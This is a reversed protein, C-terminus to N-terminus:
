KYNTDGGYAATLSHSGVILTQITKTATGSADLTVTALLTGGDSVAVTGTPTGLGAVGTATVTFTVADGYTSPNLNSTLSITAATRTIVQTVVPSVASSYNSDGAFSATISHSGASLANFTYTALGGAINGTGLVTAGDLFKMSGTASSPMQATFTVPAGYTAPNTPTTLTITPADKSVVLTVTATNTSYDTLDTPSFTVALTQSGAGLVTGLAPAYVFSGAVGGSSASLQATSLATGYTIPSPNAWTLTSTAKQVTVSASASTATYNADGSYAAALTYTGSANGAGFWATGNLATSTWVGGNITWTLTGTAGGSISATCASTALNSYTITSLSCTVTLSPTAKNITLTASATAPNHSSDGSYTVGITQSGAVTGAGLGASSSGGSLTTTTWAGGNITWVLSGTAGGGVTTTCITTQPGYTIPNPSCSVSISPTVAVGTGSLSVEQSTSMGNDTLTLIGTRAGPATPTFVVPITCTAGVALTSNATGCTNGAAASFDSTFSPNASFQVASVGRNEITVPSPSSNSAVSVSGFSLVGSPGIERIVSNTQDVVYLNGYTDVTLLTPSNLSASTASGGDGSYVPAGNGAITTIVGTSPVIQRVVNYTSDALYLIGAPDTALGWVQGIQAATAQGGDGSYGAVTTGAITTIIGTATDVKRIVNYETDSIYLNGANDIALSAPLGLQADTAQGGDGSNGDTWETGAFISWTQTQATWKWVINVDDGAYINGASDVAIAGTPDDMNPGLNTLVGTHTNLQYVNEGGDTFDVNQNADVVIGKAYSYGNQLAPGSEGPALWNCPASDGNCGAVNTMAGTSASVSFMEGDNTSLYYDSNPAAALGVIPNLYASSVVYSGNTLDNDSWNVTGAITNISGPVIGVMGALTVGSVGTITQTVEAAAAYQANGSQDAAVVVTGLGTVTLTDGAVIGPGSLVRFTVPLFSSATASLPVPWDGATVTSQLAAFIISQAQASVVQTMPNSTVSNYNNDGHYSATITHSGVSLSSVSGVATNGSVMGEAVGSGSDNFIVLGTPGNSTTATFTVSSGYASPTGSSAVSLMPTAKFVSISFPNAAGLQYNFNGAQTAELWITGTGTVTLTNAALTGPGSLLTFTVALGSTSSGSLSIPAVGYTVSTPYTGVTVTQNAQLVVLNQTVEPAALVSSNGAQDAAIVITGAGTATLTNGSVAGPGSLVSYSVPLTSSTTASLTIPGVGYTVSALSYFTITQSEKGVVVNQTVEPAAAYSSNGAQDAAVVVTGVGTIELWNGNAIYAPGSVVSFVVSNGSAGGTASLTVYGVGYYTPLVTAFSITQPTSTTLPVTTSQSSTRSSDGVYSALINHTGSGSVSIGSQSYSGIQECLFVTVSNGGENATAIDLQGDGNFDGVALAYPFSGTPYTVQSKFSGNGNGLLVSLTGASMNVAAIDLNGDGNFDGIAVNQPGNGVAYPVSTQFTGDGNGLLFSITSANNNSTILDLKGDGNFDGVAVGSPSAGVSYAVGTQFTGDGNGLLVSISNGSMNAVVLDLKGDGNFDGAAISVPLAGTPYTVQPQFTGDGNGLLVSINNSSENATAIDLNGDGNFDGVAVAQPSAGVSYTRPAQFTGDGNGLLVAVTSGNSAYSLVLDTKGDNNIDAATIFIPYSGPSYTVPSQFTGDGKGLFVSVSNGTHNATAFDLKGDGNFDGVAVSTPHVGTALASQPSFSSLVASFSSAGIQINSNSTDLFDVIGSLSQSGFAAVSGSLTYNGVGGGAGLNTFSAFIPSASVSVSDTLSTSGANATTPLFVAKINNVGYGFAKHVVATGASTLQATAYLGSSLSCDM